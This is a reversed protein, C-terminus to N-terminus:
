KISAYSANEQLELVDEYFKQDLATPNDQLSTQREEPAPPFPVTTKRLKGCLHGCLFGIIFAIIFTVVFVVASAIAIMGNQSLSFPIRGDLDIVVDVETTGSIFSKSLSLQTCM